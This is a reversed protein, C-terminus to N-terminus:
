NFDRRTKKRGKKGGGGEREKEGRGRLVALTSFFFFFFLRPLLPFIFLSLFRLQERARPHSNLSKKREQKSAPVLLSALGSEYVPFMYFGKERFAGEYVKRRARESDEYIAM